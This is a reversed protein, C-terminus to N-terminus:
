QHIDPLSSMGFGSLRNKHNEIRWFYWSIIFLSFSVTYGGGGNGVYDQTIVRYTAEPDVESYRPVEGDICRVKSSIVRSGSPASANFVNRM